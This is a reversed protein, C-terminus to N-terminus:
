QFNLEKELPSRIKFFLNLKSLTKSVRHITKVNDIM